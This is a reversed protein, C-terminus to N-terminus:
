RRQYLDKLLQDLSPTRSANLPFELPGRRMEKVTQPWEQPWGDWGVCGAEGDGGEDDSNEDQYECDEEGSDREDDYEDESNRRRRSRRSREVSSKWYRLRVEGEVLHEWSELFACHDAAPILMECEVVMSVSHFPLGRKERKTLLEDLLLLQRRPSRLPTSGIHLKKVLPPADKSNLDNGLFLLVSGLEQRQLGSLHIEEVEPLSRICGVVDLNFRGTEALGFSLKLVKTTKFGPCSQTYELASRLLLTLVTPDDSAVAAEFTGGNINKAQLEVGDYHTIFSVTSVDRLVHLGPAASFDEFKAEEDTEPATLSVHATAPIIMFRILSTTGTGALICKKLSPLPIAPPQFGPPITCFGSLGIFEISPSGRLLDLVLLPPIPDHRFVGCEFSTLGKFLGVPWTVGNPLSLDRLSPLCGSFIVPLDVSPTRDWIGIALSPQLCLVKLNPAPGLSSLFSSMYRPGITYRLEEIRDVHTRLKEFRGLDRHDIHVTLLQNGAYGLAM